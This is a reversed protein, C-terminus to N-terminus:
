TLQRLAHRADAYSSTLSRVGNSVIPNSGV